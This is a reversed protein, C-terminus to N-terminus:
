DFREDCSRGVWKIRRDIDLHAVVDANIKMLNQHPISRQIMRIFKELSDGQLSAGKTRLLHDEQQRKWKATYDIDLAKLHWILSLRKWISQYKKLSNQVTGRYDTERQIFENCESANDDIDFDLTNTNESGLFWGELLLIKPRSLSWGSRDGLGDRLSKDFRPCSLIGKNLFKYLTEELVDLDHSGPLGRPVGWPNGEMALDLRPSPLYFDDLSVVRLPLKFAKAARELWKGFSSKGCGPLGSLGLLLPQDNFSILSEVESLLPLGVGWFWDARTGEPWYNYIFYDAGRQLWFEAWKNIELPSFTSILQQLDALPFNIENEYPQFPNSISGIM